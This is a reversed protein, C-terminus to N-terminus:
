ALINKAKKFVVDVNIKEWCSPHLCKRKLCPTCPPPQSIVFCHEAQLPGTLNPDAPLFIGITKTKTAIALHLPGTDNTILLDCKKILAAFTRLPLPPDLVISGTVNASVQEILKKEEKGGSILLHCNLQQVLRNGLEIYNKKPWRRFSDTAGPHLLILPKKLSIKKKKLFLDAAAEEEQLSSYLLETNKCPIGLVHLLSARRKIEHIKQDEVLHSFLADLGKNKGRFGVMKEAQLLASLPFILRQTAHLVFIAQFKKVRLQFLLPLFSFFLPEEFSFLADIMPLNKLIECSKKQCLIALYCGPYHEKIARIAPTAWLTDGLATSSVILIRPNRPDFLNKKRYFFLSFFREIWWNKWRNKWKM